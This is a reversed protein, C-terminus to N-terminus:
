PDSRAFPETAKKIAGILEESPSSFYLHVWDAQERWVHYLIETEKGSYATPLREQKEEDLRVSNALEVLHETDLENDTLQNVASLLVSLKSLDVNLSTTYSEQKNSSCGVLLLMAVSLLVKMDFDGLGFRIM